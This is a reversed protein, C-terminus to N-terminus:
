FQLTKFFDKIKVELNNLSENNEIKIDARSGIKPILLENKAKEENIFQTYTKAEDVKETRKKLREYRIKLKATIYIILNDSFKRILKEDSVWRVGDLIIVDAKIKLVRQYIANSLTGEGFGGEMLVAIKQLNERTLSINWLTLTEKLLDSFRVREIRKDKMLELLFNGFTEKGSGKEGVLGIILKQKM